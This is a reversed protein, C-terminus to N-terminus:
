VAGVVLKSALEAALLVSVVVAALRWGRAATV